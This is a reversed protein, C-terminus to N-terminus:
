WAATGVCGIAPSLPGHILSILLTQRSDCCPYHRRLPTTDVPAAAAPRRAALYKPHADAHLSRGVGEGMSEAIATISVEPKASVWFRASDEDSLRGEDTVRLTFELVISAPLDTPITFTPSLATSSLTM